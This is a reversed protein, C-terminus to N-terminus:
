FHHTLRAYIKPDKNEATDLRKSFSVRFDNELYFAIGLSHKVDDTDEFATGNAIQGVDYLLSFSLDSGPFTFRYESNLMWFRSGMYEKRDYGELTGPGGIFFRKYMPLYGDSGGYVGTLLIMSHRNIEQYRRAKVLYRRYDFDSELDPQSWEFDASVAWASRDFPEDPDRTDFDVHAYLVGNTTSDIERIGIERYADDVTSYNKPFIKDGGFLSWINQHARIWKTEEYRYGGEFSLNKLPKVKAYINAGEAEYYDKFDETVALVFFLNEEDSMYWDDGSALKRYASGGLGLSKNRWLTQEFGVEYRWRESELAYGGTFWVTPLLSDLDEYKLTGYFGAGDVRDYSFWPTFAFETDRSYFRRRRVIEKDKGTFIEGYVSASRGAKVRGSLSVIDGRVVADPAIYIDGFLSIVDRNVEGYVDIDGKIAFIMGRVFDDKKITVKDTFSLVNGRRTRSTKSDASEKTYFILEISKERDNVGIDYINKYPYLVGDVNLGVEDFYFLEGGYFVNDQRTIDKALHRVTTYGGEEDPVSIKLYGRQLTIKFYETKSSTFQYDKYDTEQAHATPLSLAIILVSLILSSLYYKKM